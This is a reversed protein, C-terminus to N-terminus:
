NQWVLMLFSKSDISGFYFLIIFTQNKNMCSDENSDTNECPKRFCFYKSVNEASSGNHSYMFIVGIHRKCYLIQSGSKKTFLM